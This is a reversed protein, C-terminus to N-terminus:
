SSTHFARPVAFLELRALDAICTDVGADLGHKMQDFVM